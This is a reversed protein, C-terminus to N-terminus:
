LVTQSVAHEWRAMLNSAQDPPMLPEFRREAQWQAALEDLGGFV